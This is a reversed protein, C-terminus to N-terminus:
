CQGSRGPSVAWAAQCAYEVNFAIVTPDSVTTQVQRPANVRPSDMTLLVAVRTVFVNSAGTTVAASPTLYSTPDLNTVVITHGSSSSVSLTGSSLTIAICPTAGFLRATFFLQGASPTATATTCASSTYWGIAAHVDQVVAQEAMQLQDIAQNSSAMNNSQKYMV